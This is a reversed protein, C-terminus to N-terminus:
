YNSVFL